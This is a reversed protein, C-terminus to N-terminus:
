RFVEARCCAPPSETRMQTSSPLILETMRGPSNSVVQYNDGQFQAASQEHPPNRVSFLEDLYTIGYLAQQKFSAMLWHRRVPEACRRWMLPTRACQAKHICGLYLRLRAMPSSLQLLNSQWPIGSRPSHAFEMRCSPIVRRYDIATSKTPPVMRYLSRIKSKM